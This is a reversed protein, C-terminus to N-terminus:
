QATMDHYICKADKQRYTALNYTALVINKQLLQIYPSLVLSSIFKTHSYEKSCIKHSFSFSSDNDVILIINSKIVLILNNLIM